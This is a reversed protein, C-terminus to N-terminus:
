PYKYKGDSESKNHQQDLNHLKSDSRSLRHLARLGERDILLTIRPITNGVHNPSIPESPRVMQRPGSPPSMTVQRAARNDWPRGRMIISRAKQQSHPEDSRSAYWVEFVRPGSRHGVQVWDLTSYSVHFFIRAPNEIFFCGTAPAPAAAGLHVELM